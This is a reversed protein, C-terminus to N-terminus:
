ICEFSVRLTKVVPGSSTHVRVRLAKSAPVSVTMVHVRSRKADPASADPPGLDLAPPMAPNERARKMAPSKRLHPFDSVSLAALGPCADSPDAMVFALRDNIATHLPTCVGRNAALMLTSADVTAEATTSM